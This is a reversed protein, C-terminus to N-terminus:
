FLSTQVKLEQILNFFLRQNDNATNKSIQYDNKRSQAYM